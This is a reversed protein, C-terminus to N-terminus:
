ACIGALSPARLTMGVGKEGAAIRGVHDILELGQDRCVIVDMSGVTPRVDQQERSGSAPRGPQHFQNESLRAELGAILGEVETLVVDRSM